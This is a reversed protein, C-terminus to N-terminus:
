AVASKLNDLNEKMWEVYNKGEPLTETFSVTPVNANEAAARIEGTQNTETQENYALLHIDGDTIEDKIEQLTLPAVDSEAEVAEVYDAPTKDEMGASTLMYNPVPESSVFSKGKLNLGETNVALQKMETVFSEANERYTKGNETDVQALQDALALAVKGMTDFHYWVHENFSGHDHHDHADESHHHGKKAHNHAEDEHDHSHEEKAHDHGHQHGELLEAYEDGSVFGSVKVANVVAQETNDTGAMEEMFTDYGGGNLVVVEADKVTLRDNSTAEYSHPDQSTSAIISTVEVGETDGVVARAVDAYVDTTAVIDLTEDPSSSANEDNASCGALALTALSLLSLKRQVSM